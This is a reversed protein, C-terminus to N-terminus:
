QAANGAYLAGGGLGAANRQFVAGEELDASVGESPYVQVVTDEDEACVGGGKGEEAVNDTFSIAGLVQLATGQIAYIGGGNTHAVNGTVSTNGQLTVAGGASYLGGGFGKTVTNNAVKCGEWFRWAETPSASGGCFRDAINFELTVRWAEFRTAQGPAMCVAGGQTSAENLSMTGEVAYVQAGPSIYIGGGQDAKNARLEFDELEVWRDGRPAVFLGGGLLAENSALSTADSISLSCEKTHIAGGQSMASNSTFSSQSIHAGLGNATCREVHLAGGSTEAHNESMNSSSITASHVEDLYLAGGSNMAQNQFFFSSAIAVDVSYVTETPWAYLAGGDGGAPQQLDSGLDGGGRGGGYGRGGGGEARNGSLTSDSIRLLGDVFAVGGGLIDGAKNGSVLSSKIDSKPPDRSGGGGELFLVGGHINAINGTVESNQITLEGAKILAVGGEDAENESIHCDRFTVTGYTMFLVAGGGGVHNESINSAIIEVVAAAYYICTPYLPANEDCPDGIYVLGGDDVATNQHIHSSEIVVEGDNMQMFGRGQGKNETIECGNFTVVKGDGRVQYQDSDDEELFVILGDNWRLESNTFHIEKRDFQGQTAKIVPGTCNTIRCGQFTISGHIVQALSPALSAAYGALSADFEFGSFHVNSVTLHGTDGNIDFWYPTGAGDINCMSSADSGGSDDVDAGCSGKLHIARDVCVLYIIDLYGNSSCYTKDGARNRDAPQLKLDTQLIIVSITEDRVAAAVHSQGHGYESSTVYATDGEIYLPPAPPSIPLPPSSPAPSPPPPSPAQPITNLCMTTSIDLEQQVDEECDESCPQGLVNEALYPCNSWSFSGEPLDSIGACDMLCAPVGDESSPTGCQRTEFVLLQQQIESDCDDTCPKGFINAALFTCDYFDEEAACDVGECDWLCPPTDESPGNCEVPPPPICAGCTGKCNDLTEDVQDATYTGMYIAMVRAQACTGFFQLSEAWDECTSGNEDVFGPTDECDADSDDTLRRAILPSNLKDALTVVDLFIFLFTFLIPVRSKHLGSGPPKCSQIRSLAQCSSKLFHCINIIEYM